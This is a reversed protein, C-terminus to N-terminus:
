VCACVDCVTGVGVCAACGVAMPQSGLLESVEWVFCGNIYAFARMLIVSKRGSFQLVVLFFMVIRRVSTWAIDGHFAIRDGVAPEAFYSRLVDFLQEVLLNGTRM